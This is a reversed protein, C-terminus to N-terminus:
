GPQTEDLEFEHLLAEVYQIRVVNGKATYEPAAHEAARAAEALEGARRLVKAL